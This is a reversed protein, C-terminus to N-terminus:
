GHTFSSFIFLSRFGINIYDEGVFSKDCIGYNPSKKDVIWQHLFHKTLIYLIYELKGRTAIMCTISIGLFWSKCFPFWSRKQKMFSHPLVFYCKAATITNIM